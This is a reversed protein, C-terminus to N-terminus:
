VGSGWERVGWCGWKEWDGRVGGIRVLAGRVGMGRAVGKQMGQPCGRRWGRVGGWVGIEGMGRHLGGYM